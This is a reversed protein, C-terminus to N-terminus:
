YMSCYVKLTRAMLDIADLRHLKLAAEQNRGVLEEVRM